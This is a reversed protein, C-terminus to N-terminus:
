PQAFKAMIWAMHETSLALEILSRMTLWGSLPMTLMVVTADKTKQRAHSLLSHHFTSTPGLQKEQLRSETRFPLHLPMLGALAATHLFINTGYTQLITLEMWMIGAGPTLCTLLMSSPRIFALHDMNEMSSSVHISLVPTGVPLLLRLM